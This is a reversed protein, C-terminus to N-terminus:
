LGSRVRPCSFHRGTGFLSLGHPNGWSFSRCCALGLHGRGSHLTQGRMAWSESHNPQTTVSSRSQHHHNWHTFSQLLGASNWFGCFPWRALNFQSWRPGTRYVSSVCLMELYLPDM